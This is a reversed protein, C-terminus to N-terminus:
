IHHKLWTATLWSFQQYLRDCILYTQTKKQTALPTQCTSVPSVSSMRFHNTVTLYSILHLDGSFLLFLVRAKSFTTLLQVVERIM